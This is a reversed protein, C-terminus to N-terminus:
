LVKKIKDVNTIDDTLITYHHRKYTKEDKGHEGYMKLYQKGQLKSLQNFVGYTQLESPDAEEDISYTHDWWTVCLLWGKLGRYSIM